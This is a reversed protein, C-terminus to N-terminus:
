APWLGLRPRHPCLGNRDCGYGLSQLDRGYHIEVAGIQHQPGVHLVAVRLRQDAQVDCGERRAGDLAQNELLPEILVANIWRLDGDYAHARYILNDGDGSAFNTSDEQWMWAWGDDVILSLAFGHDERPLHPGVM